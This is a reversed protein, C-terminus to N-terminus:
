QVNVLRELLLFDGSVCKINMDKEERHRKFVHINKRGKGTKAICTLPTSPLSSTSVLQTETSARRM